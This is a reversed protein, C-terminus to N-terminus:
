RPAPLTAGTGQARDGTVERHGSDSARCGRASNDRAGRGCHGGLGACARSWIRGGAFAAIISYGVIGHVVYLPYSIDALGSFPRCLLQPLNAITDRFAFTTAFVAYATLYSLPGSWGDGKMLGFRWSLVFAVLLGAHLAILEHRRLRGRYFYHFATGVLLFPLFQMMSSAWHVLAFTGGFRLIAPAVLSAAVALPVSVVAVLYISRDLAKLKRSVIVCFGYFFLEIELTWIIGDIPRALTPWRPLILYHSLVDGFTYPFAVGARAANIAICALAISFGAVYTPWIRLVRAIVFGAPSLSSISFPIVFGSILFFLAVGFHGWFGPLGFDPVSVHPVNAVLAPLAPQAILEGIVQPKEWIMYLFHHTLVSGAAVGRLLHAFAIRGAHAGAPAIDAKSIGAIIKANDIRADYMEPSKTYDM